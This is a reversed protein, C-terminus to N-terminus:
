EVACQGGRRWQGGRRRLGEIATLSRFLHWLEALPKRSKFFGQEWVVVVIARHRVGVEWCLLDKLTLAMVDFHGGPPLRPSNTPHVSVPGPPAALSRNKRYLVVVWSPCTREGGPHRVRLNASPFLTLPLRKGHCVPSKRAKSVPHSVRSVTRKGSSPM